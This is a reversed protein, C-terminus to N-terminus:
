AVSPSHQGRHQTHLGSGSLRVWVSPRSPIWAVPRLLIPALDQCPYTFPPGPRYSEELLRPFWAQWLRAPSTTGLSLRRCVGPCDGLCRGLLGSGAWLARAAHGRHQKYAGSGGWSSPCPRAPGAMEASRLVEHAGLAAGQDEGVLALSGCRLGQELFAGSTGSDRKCGRPGACLRPAADAGGGRGPAWTGPGGEPGWDRSPLRRLPCGKHARPRHNAGM